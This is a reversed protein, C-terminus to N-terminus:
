QLLPRPQRGSRVPCFLAQYPGNAVGSCALSAQALASALGQPVQKGSVLHYLPNRAQRGILHESGPSSM